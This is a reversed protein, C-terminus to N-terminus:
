TVRRLQWEAFSRRSLSVTRSPANVVPVTSIGTIIVEAEGTMNSFTANPIELSIPISSGPTHTIHPISATIGSITSSRTRDQGMVSYSQPGAHVRCDVLGIPRILSPRRYRPHGFSPMEVDNYRRTEADIERIMAFGDVLESV